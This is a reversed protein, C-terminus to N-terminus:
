RGPRQSAQTMAANTRGGPNLSIQIFDLDAFHFVDVDM